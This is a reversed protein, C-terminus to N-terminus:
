SKVALADVACGLREALAGYTRPKIVLADAVHAPLKHLARMGPGYWEEGGVSEFPIGQAGLFTAFACGGTDIYCYEDEAPQMRVWDAFQDYLSKM